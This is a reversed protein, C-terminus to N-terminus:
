RTMDSGGNVSVVTGAIYGAEESTFFAVMAAVDTPEAARGAPIRKEFASFWDPPAEGLADTRTLGPSVVNAVVGQPAGERATFKAYSILASKAAAHAVVDAGVPGKSAEAGLYVIRGYGQDTMHQWVARTPHFAAALEDNVKAAFTEWPIEAVSGQALGVNANCVLADVRGYAEVTAAVLATAGEENRIDASVAIAEGGAATIATVAEDAAEKSTLYNIVVRDGRAALREAIARGIGRAAGTVVAVRRVQDEM